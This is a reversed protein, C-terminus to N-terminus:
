KHDAQFILPWLREFCYGEIPNKEYQLLLIAKMYFDRSRKRIQEKKVSFIAGPSFQICQERIISSNDFLHEYVKNFGKQIGPFNNEYKTVNHNYINQVSNGLMTFPQLIGVNACFSNIFHPSHDFPNAQTFYVIDTLSDYNEIIHHLYTHSEKGVNPISKIVIQSSLVSLQQKLNISECDISEDVNSKNYVYIMETNWLETNTLLWDISEKYRAVVLCTTPNHISLYPPINSHINGVVVKDSNLHHIEDSQFTELENMTLIIQSLFFKASKVRIYGNENFKMSLQILENPIEFKLLFKASTYDLDSCLSDNFCEFSKTAKNVGIFSVLSKIIDKHEIDLINGSSRLLAYGYYTSSRINLKDNHVDEDMVARCRKKSSAYKNLLDQFGGIM